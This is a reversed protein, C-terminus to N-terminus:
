EFVLYLGVLIVLIALSTLGYLIISYLAPIPNILTIVCSLFGLFAGVGMCVFGAFLKKANKLRRYEKLHISIATEDFGRAILAEEVAKPEMQDKIWQQLVVTDITTAYQM